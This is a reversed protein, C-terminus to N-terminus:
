KGKKSGVESAFPVDSGTSHARENGEFDMREVFDQPEHEVPVLEFQYKIKDKIIKIKNALTTVLKAPRVSLNTATSKKEDEIYYDNLSEDAEIVTEEKPLERKKTSTKGLMKSVTAIKADVMSQNFGKRMAFIEDYSQNQAMSYLRNQFKIEELNANFELWASDITGIIERRDLEDQKEDGNKDRVENYRQKALNSVYTQLDGLSEFKGEEIAETLDIGFTEEVDVVFNNLNIGSRKIKTRPKLGFVNEPLNRDILNIVTTDIIYEMQEKPNEGKLMRMRQEYVKKRMRSLHYDAEQTNAIVSTILGEANAQAHAIVEDVEKGSLPEGKALGKKRLYRIREVPVGLGQKLDRVSCYFETTGPDAQRAARGRLQDDDRKTLCHGYGIVKLGGAEVLERREQEQRAKAEEIIEDQKKEALFKAAGIKLEREVEETVEVGKKAIVSRVMQDVKEETVELIHDELSGGLKIDTGRGAMQTSIVVSGRRGARAIIENELAIDSTEANLKECHIGRRKMEEYLLNSENVSTTGILVPQGTKQSELVSAIVADIKERDTEFLVTDHDIRGRYISEIEEESVDYESNKPISITNMGYIEEFLERASTGTMGAIKPYISYFAKQSISALEDHEQTVEIDVGEKEHLRREKLEIAQQLGDSYVRGEATRGNSVLLVKKKAFKGTSGKSDDLIYEKGRELVFYAKLANDISKRLRSFENSSYFDNNLDRIQEIERTARELGRLTLTIFGDEVSYDKGEEFIPNETILTPNDNVIRDIKEGKFYRFAELWGRETLTADNGPSYLVTYRRNAKETAESNGGMYLALEEETKVGKTREKDMFLKYVFTNAVSDIMFQEKALRAEEQKRAIRQLDSENPSKISGSLKFPMVADNVLIQDAEDIIILGIERDGRVVSDSTQATNDRLYDFAFANGSGYTIDCSYAQKRRELDSKYDDGREETVVGVSLGLGEFMPTVLEGDRAALTDNSTAVHVTKGSLANLYATLPATYTKGEGTKMEAVDGRHLAIAGMIQVPYQEIGLYRRSAERAVAFAEPLIDDLTEGAKLRERFEDTKGKLDEDSLSRVTKSHKNIEKIITEYERIQKKNDYGFLFDM